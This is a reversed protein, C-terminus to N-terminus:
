VAEAVSVRAASDDRRPRVVIELDRGLAVVFHMLEESAAFRCEKLRM